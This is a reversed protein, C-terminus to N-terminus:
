AAAIVKNRKHHIEALPLQKEAYVVDEGSKRAAALFDIEVPKGRVRGGEFRAITLHAGLSVSGCGVEGGTESFDGNGAAVGMGDRPDTEGVRFHGLRAINIFKEGPEHLTVAAYM